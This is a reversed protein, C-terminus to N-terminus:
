PQSSWQSLKAQADQYFRDPTTFGVWRGIEMGGLSVFVIAPISVIKYNSALTRNKDVNIKLCVFNENLFASLADDSYTDSDLRKCPACWDAYFDIMIPKNESQARSLADDMNYLWNVKSEAGGSNIVCGAASILLLAVLAVLLVVKGFRALRDMGAMNVSRIV